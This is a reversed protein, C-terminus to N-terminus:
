LGRRSLTNFTDQIQDFVSGYKIPKPEEARKVAATEAMTEEGKRFGTM